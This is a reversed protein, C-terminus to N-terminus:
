SVLDDIGVPVMVYQMPQKLMLEKFNTWALTCGKKNWKKIGIQETSLWYSQDSDRETRFTQVRPDNEMFGIAEYTAKLDRKM